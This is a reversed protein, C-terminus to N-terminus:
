GAKCNKGGYGDDDQQKSSCVSKYSERPSKSLTFLAVKVVVQSGDSLIVLSNKKHETNHLTLVNTCLKKKRLFNIREPCPYLLVTTKKKTSEERKMERERLPTM